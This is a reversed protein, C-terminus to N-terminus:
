EAEPARAAEADVATAVAAGAADPEPLRARARELAEQGVVRVRGRRRDGAPEVGLRVAGARVALVDPEAAAREPLRLRERGEAVDRVAAAAEAVRAPAVRLADEAVHAVAVHRDLAGRAVVADHDDAVRLEVGLPKRDVDLRRPPQPRSPRSPGSGPRAARARPRAAAAARRRAPRPPPACTSSPPSARPTGPPRSRGSGRGAGSRRIRARDASTRSPPRRSRARSGRSRRTGRGRRPARAAPPTTTRLPPAPRSRRSRPTGRGPLRSATWGYEDPAGYALQYMPWVNVGSPRVRSKMAGRLAQVISSSQRPASPR